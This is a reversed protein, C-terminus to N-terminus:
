KREEPSELEKLGAISSYYGPYIELAKRFSEEAKNKKGLKLSSWGLGDYIDHSRKFRKLGKEFEGNAEKYNGKKFLAWGKAAYVETWEPYLKELELYEELAADYEASAVLEAGAAMVTQKILLLKGKGAYAGKHAPNKELGRNFYYDAKNYDKDGFHANGIATLTDPDKKGSLKLSRKFYDVAVSFDSEQLAVYGRILNNDASGPNETLAIELYEKAKETNGLKFYNYAVGEVAGAHLKDKEMLTEFVKLSDQYRGLKFMTWGIGELADTSGKDLERVREFAELAEEYRELKFYSWGSMLVASENDPDISLAKEYYSISDTYNGLSFNRTGYAEYHRSTGCGITVLSIVCLVTLKVVKKNIIM